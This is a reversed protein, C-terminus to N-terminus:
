AVGRQDGDFGVSALLEDALGPPFPPGWPVTARYVPLAAAVDGTLEFLRAIPEPARWAALRPHRLLEQLGEMAGLRRVDLSRTERSPEPVLAAHLRLPTDVRDTPLM